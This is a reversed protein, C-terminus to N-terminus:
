LTNIHIRLNSFHTTVMQGLLNWNFICISQPIQCLIYFSINTCPLLTKLLLLLVKCFLLLITIGIKSVLM